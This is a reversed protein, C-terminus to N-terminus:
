IAQSSDTPVGALYAMLNVAMDCLAIPHVAQLEAARCLSVDARSVQREWTKGPSSVQAPRSGMLHVSGLPGRAEAPCPAGQTAGPGEAVALLATKQWSHKTRQLFATERLDSCDWPLECDM